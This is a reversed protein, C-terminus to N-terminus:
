RRAKVPVISKRPAPADPWTVGRREAMARGAAKWDAATLARRLAPLIVQEEAQIHHQYLATWRDVIAPDLESREGAEVRSLTADLGQWLGETIRHDQEIAALTPELATLEEAALRARLRPFLDIEEDAHHRPAAENFYRRISNATVRADADAGVQGLHQNLRAMLSCFRLVREHCALWLEVPDDFGAAPSSFEIQSM